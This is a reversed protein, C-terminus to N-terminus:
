GRALIANSALFVAALVALLFIAVIAWILKM